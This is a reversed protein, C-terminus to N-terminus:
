EQALAVVDWKSTASNYISGVYLHKGLTTVTPLIVGIVNFIANWTLTQSVGNDLIRITLKQGDSGAGPSNITLGTALATVEYLDYSTATPTISSASTTSGVRPTISKNTLTQTDSTGVVTGSPATVTTFASTGNGIVIGTLTTAGSGGNAVPLTGTVGTTLPLGTVNTMVGSAPTGLVPTTLTPSTLTKNTLTEVGSPVSYDTGATASVMATTGTGKVIGTLTAVGTGGNAVPLTGTVNTTLSVSSLVALSGLGLNTRATGANALDSLNNAIALKTSDTATASGWKAGLTQTSDAILVQGDTGIPLRTTSSGHIIIDGKTTTPDAFGSSANAWAAATGSTATIVQGASPTGTVSVGNVKAVTPSPLTGSLDGGATSSITAATGLGLNTRATAASAVDSLNSAAALKANLATQTATSVPKSADSTNDVNGLGVDGKVIGTPTVLAPSNSFVVSGTGTTSTTGNGGNAVPLVGTVDTTLNAQAFATTGTGTARLLKNATPTSAGTGLKTELAKIADNETSHLVAHDPNNTFQGSTPNPLTTGDDISAPFNAM